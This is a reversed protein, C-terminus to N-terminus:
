RRIQLHCATVGGVSIRERFITSRPPDAHFRFSPVRQMAVRSRRSVMGGAPVPRELRAAATASLWSVPQVM